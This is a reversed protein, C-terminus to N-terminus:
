PAVAVTGDRNLAGCLGSEFACTPLPFSVSTYTGREKSRNEENIAGALATTRVALLVTASGQRLQRDDPSTTPATVATEAWARSSDVSLDAAVIGATAGCWLITKFIRHKMSDAAATRVAPM